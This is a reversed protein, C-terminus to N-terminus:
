PLRFSEAVESITYGNPAPKLLFWLEDGFLQSGGARPTVIPVRLLLDDGTVALPLPSGQRQPPVGGVERYLEIEAERYISRDAAATYDLRALRANWLALAPYRGGGPGGSSAANEALLAGIDDLSERTVAAFFREVVELAVAPDPPAQLVAVAEDTAAKPRAAPLRSTPDVVVGPAHREDEDAAPTTRAPSTPSAAGCGLVAM